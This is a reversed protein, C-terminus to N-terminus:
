GGRGDRGREALGRIALEYGGTGFGVVIGIAVPSLYSHHRFEERAHVNSVHVEITPVSAGVIADRLAVSTHTYAGANLVVGLASGAAVERGIDQLWDVLTGESNSQRFVLAHGLSDTLTRCRAEVDALTEHGYVEPERTGLLNLNPGNVVHITPM